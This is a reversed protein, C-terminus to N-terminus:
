SQEETYRTTRRAQRKPNVKTPVAERKVASGDKGLKVGVKESDEEEVDKKESVLNLKQTVPRGKKASNQKDQTLDPKSENKPKSPENKM